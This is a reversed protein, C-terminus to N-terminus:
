VDLVRPKGKVFDHVEGLVCQDKDDLYFWM